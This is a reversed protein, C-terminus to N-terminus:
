WGTGCPCPSPRPCPALHLVLLAGALPPQRGRAVEQARRAGGRRAAPRRPQEPGGAGGVFRARQGQRQAGRAAGAGRVRAALHAPQGAPAAGAACRRRRVWSADEGVWQRKARRRQKAGSVELNPCWEDLGRLERLNELGLNLRDLRALDPAALGAVSRVMELSLAVGGHPAAAAPAAAKGGVGRAGSAVKAAGAGGQVEEIVVGGAGSSGVAAPPLAALLTATASVMPPWLWRPSAAGSAALADWTCATAGAGSRLMAVRQAVSRHFALAVPDQRSEGATGERHGPPQRDHGPASAAERAAAGDQQGAASDTDSEEELLLEAGDLLQAMGQASARHTPAPAHPRWAGPGVAPWAPAHLPAGDHALATWLRVAVRRGADVCRVSDMGTRSADHPVTHALRISLLLARAACACACACRPRCAAAAARAARGAVAEHQRGAGAASGGGAGGLVGAGGGGRWRWGRGTGGSALGASADAAAAPGGRGNGGAAARGAGAAALAIGRGARGVGGGARWAGCRRGRSAAVVAGWARAGGLGPRPASAHLAPRARARCAAARGRAAVAGFPQQQGPFGAGRRHGPPRPPPPPAAPACLAAPPAAGGCAGGRRLGAGPPRPLAVRRRRARGAVRVGAGRAQLAGRIRAHRPSTPAVPHPARAIDRSTGADLIRLSGQTLSSVQCPPLERAARELRCAGAGGQGREAAAGHGGEGERAGGATTCAARPLRM